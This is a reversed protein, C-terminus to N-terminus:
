ARAALRATPVCTTRRSRRRRPRRAVRTRRPRRRRRRRSRFSSAPGPARRSGRRVTRTVRPATEVAVEVTAVRSEDRGVQEVLHEHAAVADARCRRPRPRSRGSRGRCGRTGRSSSGCRSSTRGARAAQVHVEGVAHVPARVRHAAVVALADRHQEAGGRRQGPDVVIRATAHRRRAVRGRGTCRGPWATGPRRGRGPRRRRRGRSRRGRRSADDVVARRRRRLRAVAHAIPRVAPASCGHRQNTCPSRVQERGRYDCAPPRRARSWTTRSPSRTSRRATRRVRRTQKEFFQADEGPGCSRRGRRGIGCGSIGTTSGSRCARRASRRDGAGQDAAAGGHRGAARRGSRGSRGTGAAILGAPQRSRRQRMATLTAACIPEAATPFRATTSGTPTAPKAIFLVYIWMVPSVVGISWSGLWSASVSQRTLVVHRWRTVTPAAGGCGLADPERATARSRHDADSTRTACRRGDRTSGPPPRDDRREPSQTKSRAPPERGAPTSARRRRLRVPLARQDRRRRVHRGGVAGRRQRRATVPAATPRRCGRRCAADDHARRNAASRLRRGAHGRDRRDHVTALDAGAVHRRLGHHQHDAADDPGRDAPLGGVRRDVPDAHLRLVLREQLGRGDGDQRRRSSGAARCHGHGAVIVQQLVSTVTDAVSADMAKTQEHVDRTSSRATPRRSRRSWSRTSTCATTPSRATCPPWRSRNCTTPGSCPPPCRRSRTTIGMRQAM